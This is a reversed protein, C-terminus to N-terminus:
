RINRVLHSVYNIDIKPNKLLLKLVDIYLKQQNLDIYKYEIKRVLQRITSYIDKSNINSNNSILHIIDVSPNERLSANSLAIKIQSSNIHPNELAYMVGIRDGTQIARTLDKGTIEKSYKDISTEVRKKINKYEM